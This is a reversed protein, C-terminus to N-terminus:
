DPALPYVHGRVEYGRTGGREEGGVIRQELEDQNLLYDIIVGRDNVELLPGNLPELGDGILVVIDDGTWAEPISIDAM